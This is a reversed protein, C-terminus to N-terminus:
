RSSSTETGKRHNSAKSFSEATETLFTGLAKARKQDDHALEAPTKKRRSPAEEVNLVEVQPPDLELVVRGNDSYWEIYPYDVYPYYPTGVEVHRRMDEAAERRRNERMQGTIGAEDWNTELRTMLNQALEETWPGLSLGATIDGVEGRQVSAFGEMYTGGRDLAHSRDSPQDNHLRIAMGRIDEHFDGALDFKVRLPQKGQRFFRMWGTVKGPIRNDLEGDILNEYPRWAM